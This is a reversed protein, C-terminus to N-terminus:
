LKSHLLYIAFIVRLLSSSARPALALARGSDHLADALLRDRAPKM